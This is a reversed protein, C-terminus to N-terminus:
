WNCPPVSAACAPRSCACRRTETCASSGAAPSNCALANTEGPNFRIRSLCAPNVGARRRRRDGSEASKLGRARKPKLVYEVRPVRDHDAHHDLSSDDLFSRREADRAFVHTSKVNRKGRWGQFEIAFRLTCVGRRAMRMMLIHIYRQTSRYDRWIRRADTIDKSGLSDNGALCLNNIM